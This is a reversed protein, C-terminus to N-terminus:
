KHIYLVNDTINCIYGKEDIITILNNKDVTKVQSIDIGFSDYTITNIDNDLNNFHKLIRDCILKLIDIYAKDKISQLHDQYEQTLHYNDINNINDTYQDIDYILPKLNNEFFSM